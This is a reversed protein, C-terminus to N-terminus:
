DGLILTIQIADDEKHTVNGDSDVIGKARYDALRDMEKEMTKLQESYPVTM